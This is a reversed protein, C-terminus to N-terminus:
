KNTILYSGCCNFLRFGNEIEEIYDRSGVLWIGIGWTNEKTLDLESPNVKYKPSKTPSICDIMGDFDEKQKVYLNQINNKVFSKLTRVTPYKGM